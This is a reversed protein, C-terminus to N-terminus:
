KYNTRRSQKQINKYKKSKNYKTLKHRKNEKRKINKDTQLFKHLNMLKKTQLAIAIRKFDDKTEEDSSNNYQYIASIIQKDLQKVTYGINKCCNIYKLKDKLSKYGLDNYGEYIHLCQEWISSDFTKNSVEIVEKQM